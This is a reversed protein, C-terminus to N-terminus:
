CTWFCSFNPKCKFLGDTLLRSLQWYNWNPDIGFLDPPYHRFLDSQFSGFCAQVITAYPFMSSGFANYTDLLVKVKKVNEPAFNPVWYDNAFLLGEEANVGMLISDTVMNGDLMEIFPQRVIVSEENAGDQVVPGFNYAVIVLESL